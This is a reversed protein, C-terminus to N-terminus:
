ADKIKGVEFVATQCCWALVHCFATAEENGKIANVDFHHQREKCNAPHVRRFKPIQALKTEALGIRRLESRSQISVRISCSHDMRWVISSWSPGEFRTGLAELAEASVGRHSGFGGRGVICLGDIHVYVIELISQFCSYWNMSACGSTHRLQKPVSVM